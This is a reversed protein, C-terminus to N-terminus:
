KIRCVVKINIHRTGRRNLARVISMSGSYKISGTVKAAENANMNGTAEGGLAMTNACPYTDTASMTLILVSNSDKNV